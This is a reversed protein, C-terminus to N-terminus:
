HGLSRFNLGAMDLGAWDHAVQCNLLDAAKQEAQM